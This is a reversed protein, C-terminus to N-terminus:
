LRTQNRPSARAPIVSAAYRSGEASPSADSAPRGGCAPSYATRKEPRTKQNNQLERWVDMLTVEAIESSIPTERPGKAFPSGTRNQANAVHVARRTATIAKTAHNSRAPTRTFKMESVTRIPKLVPTAKTRILV